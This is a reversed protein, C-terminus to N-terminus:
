GDRRKVEEVIAECATNILQFAYEYSKETGGYPDPVHQNKNPYVANLIFDVKNMDQANRAMRKVDQYNRNDMVYIKDFVDFDETSFLRQRQNEINIGHNKATQISLYHPPNGLCYSDFGCSDVYVTNELNHEKLKQQLVGEAMPSRCINGLCVM